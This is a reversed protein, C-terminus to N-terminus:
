ASSKTIMRPAPFYHLYEHYMTHHTFILPVQLRRALIAGLQGTLFPSHTHIIDINLRQLLRESHITIPIPLFYSPCTPAPVSYFRFVKTAYPDSHQEIGKKFKKGYYFPAFIYVEHGQQVLGKTFRQLSRVVGSVYPSYSDSYFAIRM